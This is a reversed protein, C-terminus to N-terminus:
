PDACYAMAHPPSTTTGDSVTWSSVGAARTIAITLTGGGPGACTITGGTPCGAGDAPLALDDLSVAIAAGGDLSLTLSSNWVDTSPGSVFDGAHTVTATHGGGHVTIEMAVSSDGLRGSATASLDVTFYDGVEFATSSLTITSTALSAAITISGSATRLGGLIPLEDLTVTVSTLSNRVITVAGDPADFADELAQELILLDLGDQRAEAEGDTTAEGHYAGLVPYFVSCFQLTGVTADVVGAATTENDAPTAGGGSCAGLGVALAALVACVVFWKGM